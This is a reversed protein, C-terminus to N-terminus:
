RGDYMGMLSKRRKSKKPDGGMARGKRRQEMRELPDVNMAFRMGEIPQSSISGMMGAVNKKKTGYM